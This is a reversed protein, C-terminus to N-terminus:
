SLRHYLDFRASSDFGKGKVYVTMVVPPPAPPFNDWNGCNLEHDASVVFESEMVHSRFFGEFENLNKGVDACDSTTIVTQEATDRLSNLGAVLDVSSYTFLVQQVVFVMGMLFIMTLVFMQGKSLRM